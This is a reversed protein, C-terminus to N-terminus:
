AWEMFKVFTFCAFDFLLELYQTGHRYKNRKLKSRRNEVKEQM